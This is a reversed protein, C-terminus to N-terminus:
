APAKIAKTLGDAPMHDTPIYAIQLRGMEVEQRVLHYRVAIHKSGRHFTPNEALSLVGQNDGYLTMPDLDQGKYHLGVLLYRLWAGEKALESMAIYEAETSSQAVVSQRKSQWSIPEGALFNVYVSTSRYTHRDGAYDSDTYLRIDLNNPSYDTGGFTIGYMITGKLYQLTRKATKIHVPAPNVLFRSLASTTFTIDCRTQTALYNIRGVLSQYLKIQDETANGQYPVLTDSAGPDIPTLVARCELMGFQDLVKRIYADQCITTKNQSRDRTIRVGLFFQCPGLDKMDFAESLQLKLVRLREGKLGVLLFDDVYTIIILGTKTSRYVCQDAFLPLYGIRNLTAKLTLQWLRPSQKLRYLAKQLLLVTEGSKFIDPFLEWGEPLEVYVEEDINGHLFASKVDM